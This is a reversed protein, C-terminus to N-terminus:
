THQPMILLKWARFPDIILVMIGYLDLSLSYPAKPAKLQNKIAYSLQHLIMM